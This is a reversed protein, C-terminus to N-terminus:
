DYKIIPFTDIIVGSEDTIVIFYKGKSYNLMDIELYNLTMLSDIILQGLESIIKVNVISKFEPPAIITIKSDFPNPYSIFNYDAILGSVSVGPQTLSIVEKDPQQFGQTIIKLLSTNDITNTLPEGVTYSLKNNEAPVTGVYNISMGSSGLVFRDPMNPLSLPLQPSIIYCMTGWPKWDGGNNWQVYCELIKGSPINTFDSFYAFNYNKLITQDFYSQGPLNKLRFRYQTAFPMSYCFFSAGWSLAQFGCYEPRLSTKQSLCTKIQCSPGYSSWTIGNDNSWCVSITYWTTDKMGFFQGINIKSGSSTNNPIAISIKESFYSPNSTNNIAKYKYHTAGALFTSFVEGQNGVWYLMQQGCHVPKLQTLSQAQSKSVNLTLLGIFIFIYKPFNM